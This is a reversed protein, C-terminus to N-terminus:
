SRACESGHHSNRRRDVCWHQRSNGSNRLRRRHRCRSRGGQGLRRDLGELLSQILLADSHLGIANQRILGASRDALVLRLVMERHGALGVLCREILEANGDRTGIGDALGSM